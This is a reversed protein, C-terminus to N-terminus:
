IEWNLTCGLTIRPTLKGDNAKRPDTAELVAAFRSRYVGSGQQLIKESHPIMWVRFQRAGADLTVFYVHHKPDRVV